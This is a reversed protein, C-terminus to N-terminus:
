DRPAIGEILEDLAAIVAEPADQWPSHGVTELELSKVPGSVARAITTLQADTAFPDDGGQLLVIPATVSLLTTEINWDRFAPDIWTDSWARFTADPDRHLRALKKKWDSSEYVARAVRIRSLTQEEVFAYPAMAGVGAVAFSAAHILALSAGDGHGVLLPRDIGLQSLLTPLVANAEVHLYDSRRQELPPDSQGCGPRSFVLAPCGTAGVLARPFEKWAALCDISEHLLVLTPARRRARTPTIWAYEVRRRNVSTVGRLVHATPGSPVLRLTAM